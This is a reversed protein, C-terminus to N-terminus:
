RNGFVGSVLFSADEDATDAIVRSDAAAKAGDGVGLAKKMAADIKADINENARAFAKDVASGILADFDPTQTDKAAGGKKKDKEKEKEDDKEDSNGEGNDKGADLVRKVAEADADQCKTYLADLKESVEEKRALVAEINKYCDAVAGVLVERAESDGLATVYSMAETIERDIGAADSADLARVKEMSGFLINSFKFGSDKAKGIGLLTLFGKIMRYGGTRSTAAASDLVRVSSGGRGRATIALGNVSTIETMVFDYGDRAPDASPCLKLGYQASTERNGQEFYDAVGQTYFAIKGKLGINGDDLAIVAIDNGVCGEAQDRFNDPSTDDATHERTVVAFAFKDKAAVLVHPPRYIKYLPKEVDPVVGMIRLDDRSYVYIGSRALIADKILIAPHTDKAAM